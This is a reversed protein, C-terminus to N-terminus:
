EVASRCTVGCGGICSSFQANYLGGDLIPMSGLYLFILVISQMSTDKSRSSGTFWVLQFLNSRSIRSRQCIQCSLRPSLCGFLCLSLGPVFERERAFVPLFVLDREVVWDELCCELCAPLCAIPAGLFFKPSHVLCAPLCAWAGLVKGFVSKCAPPCVPLRPFLSVWSGASVKKACLFFYAACGDCAYTWTTVWCSDDSWCM